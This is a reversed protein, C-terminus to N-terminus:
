GRADDFQLAAM